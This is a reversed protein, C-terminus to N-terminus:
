LRRDGSYFVHKGHQAVRAMTRAWQPSVYDAHYYLVNGRRPGDRLMEQRLMEQALLSAWLGGPRDPGWVQRLMDRALINAQKWAGQGYPRDPLGDCVFSFQCAHRRSVGQLVVDCVNDPYADSRKRNLIVDGVARQGEPPESRAEFYIALALYADARWAEIDAADTPMSAANPVRVSAASPSSVQHLVASPAAALSLPASPAAATVPPTGGAWPLSLLALAALAFGALFCIEGGPNRPRNRATHNM